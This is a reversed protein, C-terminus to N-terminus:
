MKQLLRQRHCIRPASFTVVGNCTITIREEAVGDHGISITRRDKALVGVMPPTGDTRVTCGDSQGSTFPGEAGTVDTINLNATGFKGARARLAQLYQENPFGATERTV